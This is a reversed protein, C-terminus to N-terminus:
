MVPLEKLLTQLQRPEQAQILLAEPNAYPDAVTTGLNRDENNDLAANDAHTPPGADLRLTLYDHRRKRLADYATNRVIRLVWARANPGHFSHFYTLARLMAEQVVDEAEPTGRMLRRALVYAGDLHLMVVREFDLSHREGPTGM